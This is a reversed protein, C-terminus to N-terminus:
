RGELTVPGEIVYRLVVHFPLSRQGHDVNTASSQAAPLRPRSAVATLVTMFTLAILFKNM